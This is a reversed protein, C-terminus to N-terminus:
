LVRLSKNYHPNSLISYDLSLEVEKNFKNLCYESIGVIRKEEFRKIIMVQGGYGLVRSGIEMSQLLTNALEQNSFNEQNTM